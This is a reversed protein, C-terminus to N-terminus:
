RLSDWFLVLFVGVGLGLSATALGIRHLPRIWPAKGGVKARVIGSAGTLGLIAALCLPVLLKAIDGDRLHVAASQSLSLVGGLTLLCLTTLWKFFDYLVMQGDPPGQEEDIM